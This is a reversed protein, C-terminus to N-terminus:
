YDVLNDKSRRDCNFMVAMVILISISTPEPISTRTSSGVGSSEGFNTRWTSYNMHPGGIKRWVVYDAADVIGDRNYDGPAEIVNLLISTTGYTLDWSLGFPLVPLFVDDFEGLLGGSANILEFEAGLMPTFGASLEVALTGALHAEDAVDVIPEALSSADLEMTLTGNAFQDFDDAIEITGSPELRLQGNTLGGIQLSRLGSIASEVTAIGGGDLFVAPGSQDTIPTAVTVSYYAWDVGTDDNIQVNVSGSQMESLFSGLDIV